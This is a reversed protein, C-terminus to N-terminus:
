RNAWMPLLFSPRSPASCLGGLVAFHVSSPWSSPCPSSTTELPLQLWWPQKQQQSRDWWWLTLPRHFETFMTIMTLAHLFLKGINYMNHPYSFSFFCLNQLFSAAKVLFTFASMKRFPGEGAYYQEVANYTQFRKILVIYLVTLCFFRECNMYKCDSLASARQTCAHLLYM